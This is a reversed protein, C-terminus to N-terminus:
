GGKPPEASRSCQERSEKSITTARELYNHYAHHLAHEKRSMLELNDPSNNQKNHDKHHVVYGKPIYTYGNAKAWILQHVLVRGGMKTGTWWDPAWDELYAGAKTPGHVANHHTTGCKGTM